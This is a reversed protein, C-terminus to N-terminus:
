REKFSAYKGQRLRNEARGILYTSIAILVISLLLSILLSSAILRADPGHQISRRVADMAWTTALFHGAFQASAPLLNTPQLFGSIIVVCPLIANFFGPMGGTLFSMPILVYACAVISLGAVPISVLLLASSGVRLTAGGMLLVVAAAISAVIGYLIVIAMLRGFVIVALSSCTTMEMELAGVEHAQSLIWGGQFASTRWLATLFCGFAAATIVDSAGTKSVIWGVTVVTSLQGMVPFALDFFNITSRWQLLFSGWFTRCIKLM